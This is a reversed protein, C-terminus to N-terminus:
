YRNVKYEHKTGPIFVSGLKWEDGQDGFKEWIIADDMGSMKIAIKLAGVQSGFM